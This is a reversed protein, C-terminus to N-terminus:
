SMCKDSNRIRIKFYAQKTVQYFSVIVRIRIITSNVLHLERPTWCRYCRQTTLSKCKMICRGNSVWSRKGSNPALPRLRDFGEVFTDFSASLLCPRSFEALYHQDRSSPQKRISPNFRSIWSEFLWHIWLVRNRIPRIFRVAYWQSM